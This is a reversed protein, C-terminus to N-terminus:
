EGEGAAALNPALFVLSILIAATRVLITAYPTPRATLRGSIKVSSPPRFNGSVPTRTCTYAFTFPGGTLLLVTLLGSLWIIAARRM